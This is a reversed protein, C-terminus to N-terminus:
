YPASASQAGWLENGGTYRQMKKEVNKDNFFQLVFRNLSHDCATCLWLPRKRNRDACIAMDWRHEATANTCHACKKNTKRTM